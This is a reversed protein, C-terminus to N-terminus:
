PRGVDVYQQNATMQIGTFGEPPPTMDIAYGSGNPMGHEKLYARDADTMLHNKFTPNSVGSRAVAAVLPTPAPRVYKPMCWLLVPISAASTLKPM